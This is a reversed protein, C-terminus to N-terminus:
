RVVEVGAHRVQGMANVVVLYKGSPLAYGGSSLGDWTFRNTGEELEGDHVERVIRGEVDYIRVRGATARPVEVTIIADSRVPNPLVAVRIAHPRTHVAPSEVGSMKTDIAFDWIGRGHTGFRITHITDVFEVSWYTQDPATEGAMDYWQKSQVDFLMPGAETAAVVYKEDVDSSMSYILTRPLGTTISDFTAGHDNSVFAGANSYGSGGIYVRGLNKRSPVISAGYFYHNGPGVFSTDTRNWSAGADSSRFFVGATTLVYRYNPNIPSIAIASIQGNSGDESFDYPLQEASILTNTTARLRVLYAGDQANGNAVYAIRPNAPDAAIPPLWLQQNGEFTWQPMGAGAGSGSRYMAFGPYNCWFTRGSDGSTLHGYDGSIVQDFKLVGGNDLAAFQLGQDQSGAYVVKGDTRRTYTSYYQSVNLGNMSLNSVTQIDDLSMFLGGDCSILHIMEGGTDPDYITHIGFIDAHLEFEPDDYYTWWDNRKSWNRGGDYSRFCEVGGIFVNESGGGSATMSNRSFPRVSYGRHNWSAGRDTSAIWQAATDRDIVAYLRLTLGAGTCILYCARASSVDFGQIVSFPDMGGNPRIRFISDNHMLLVTSGSVGGKATSAWLDFNRVSGVTRMINSFSSGADTSRYVTIISRWQQYDWEEGLAYITDGSGAVVGRAFSGWRAITDLGGALQWTVGDDDSYHLSAPSNHLALLRRNGGSIIQKLMIIGNFRMGDNLSTWNTGDVTGRWVNGAASAAYIMGRAVDVDAYVIRGAQNASGREQWNGRLIGAITDSGQISTHEGKWKGSRARVLTRAEQNEREIVRWNIGPETRHMGEIWEDRRDNQERDERQHRFEERPSEQASVPVMAILM